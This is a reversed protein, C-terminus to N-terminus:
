DPQFTFDAEGAYYSNDGSAPFKNVGATTTGWIYGLYVINTKTYPFAIPSKVKYNYWNNSIITYSYKKNAVIGLPEINVWKKTNITEQEITKSFIITKTDTDWLTVKYSGVKPCRVSVKTIKGPKNAQFNLGFEYITNGDLITPKLYLSDALFSELFNQSPNNDTKKCNYILLFSTCLLLTSITTKFNKM